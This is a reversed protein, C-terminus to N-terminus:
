QGGLEALAFVTFSAPDARDAVCVGSPPIISSTRKQKEQELRQYLLRVATQIGEPAGTITM